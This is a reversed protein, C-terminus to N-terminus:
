SGAGDTRCAGHLCGMLRCTAVQATALAPRQLQCLVKAASRALPWEPALLQDPLVVCPFALALYAVRQRALYPLPFMPCPISHLRSLLPFSTCAQASASTTYLPTTYHCSIHKTCLNTFFGHTILM